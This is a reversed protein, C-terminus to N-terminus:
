LKSHGFKDMDSTEPTEYTKIPVGTWVDWIIIKGFIDTSVLYRGVSDEDTNYFTINPINTTHGYLRIILNQDRPLNETRSELLKWGEERPFTEVNKDFSCRDAPLDENSDHSGPDRLGFAFVTIVHSNASVAIMRGEKHIAIGWASEGVNELLLPEPKVETAGQTAKFDWDQFANQIAGISYAIIAGSDCSCVLIEDNGLDGVKIQNIAHPYQRNISGPRAGGSQPLKIVWEDRTQLFQDPFRPQYVYIEDMCAVFYLNRYQSM